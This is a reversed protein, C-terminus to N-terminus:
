RALLSSERLCSPWEFAAEPTAPARVRRAIAEAYASRAEPVRGARVLARARELSALMPAGDPPNTEGLQLTEAAASPDNSLARALGTVLRGRAVRYGLEAPPVSAAWLRAAAREVGARDRRRFAALGAVYPTLTPTGAAAGHYARSSRDADAAAERAGALDGM